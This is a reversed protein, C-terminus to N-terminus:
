RVTWTTPRLSWTNSTRNALAISSAQTHLTGALTPTVKYSCSLPNSPGKSVLFLRVLGDQTEFRTIQKANVLAQLSDTDPLVGAPLAHRIEVARGTPASASIRVTATQGVRSFSPPDIALELGSDPARKPWPVRALLELSFGLGPLPPDSRVTWIHEGAARPAPRQIVLPDFSTRPNLEGSAFPKGDRTLTIEIADPLPADFLQLIAKLCLLNTRGDGWASAPRYAGIIAAGLDAVWTAEDDEALALAALATAESISPARGNARTVKDGPRLVRAGDDRIEIAERVRARLTPVVDEPTAGSALMAAATYADTADTHFRGIATGARSIIARADRQIEDNDPAAQAAAQAAIAADATAILVRQVTWQEGSTFTGDPRQNQALYRVLRVGMRRLVPDSPHALAAQAFLAATELNPSRTHRLARQTAIIRQKRLKNPDLESNLKTALTPAHGLLLLAHAVSAASGRSIAASLESRLVSLAGPFVTLRIQTSSPDLRRPGDIPVARPAALTGGQSLTRLKGTPLVPIEHLVADQRGFSARLNLTGSKATVRVGRLVTDHAPVTISEAAQGRGAGFASVQLMGRLPKDTTNVIQVPLRVQDGAVLFAPIVPEVYVPLTGLFETTAGSLGGTRGHALALVRWTTLRDPIRTVVQAQGATDTIVSPEFLFTEPFWARTPSDQTTTDDAIDQNPAAKPEATPPEMSVEAEEAEMMMAPAPPASRASRSAGRKAKNESKKKETMPGMDASGLCGLSLM